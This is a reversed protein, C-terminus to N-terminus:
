IIFACETMRIEIYSIQYSTSPLFVTILKQLLLIFIYNLSFLFFSNTIQSLINGPKQFLGFFKLLKWSQIM